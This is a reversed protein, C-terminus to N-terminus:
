TGAILGKASADIDAISRFGAPMDVKREFKWSPYPNGYKFTINGSKEALTYIQYNLTRDIAEQTKRFERITWGYIDSARCHANVAVSYILDELSFVLNDSNRRANEQSARVLEPNWNENPIDYGNQAAIIQRVDDMQRMSLLAYNAQVNGVMISTLEGSQAFVPRLPIEGDRSADLRLAAALVCLVWALYMGPKGEQKECELDLAWLCACWSLRALKPDQLSSLMLEFSLRANAYLAYDRVLLPYFTLDNYVVPVNEQIQRQYKDVFAM